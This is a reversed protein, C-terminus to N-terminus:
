AVREVHFGRGASWSRVLSVEEVRRGEIARRISVVVNVAEAILEPNPPVGAEQILQGVRILAASADNAHVTGVGGPHGTNWAKLLALASGVRNRCGPIDSAQKAASASPTRRSRDASLVSNLRQACYTTLAGARFRGSSVILTRQLPRDDGTAPSTLQPRFPRDAFSSDAPSCLGRKWSRCRQVRLKASSLARQPAFRTARPVRSCPGPLAPLESQFRTAM